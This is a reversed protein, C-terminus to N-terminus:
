LAPYSGAHIVASHGTGRFKSGYFVMGTAGATVIDTEQRGVILLRYM